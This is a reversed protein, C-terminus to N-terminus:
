GVLEERVTTGWLESYNGTTTIWAQASPTTHFQKECVCKKHLVRELPAQLFCAKVPAAVSIYLLCRM